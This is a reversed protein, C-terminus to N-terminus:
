PLDKSIKPVMLGLYIRGKQFKVSNVNWPMPNKMTALIQITDLKSNLDKTM